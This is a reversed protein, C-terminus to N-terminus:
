LGTLGQNLEIYTGWPDTIFALGLGNPSALKRYPVDFKVGSAELKECFAALDTIEFGIHDLVRGRTGVIATPSISFTLNVGPLDVADNEGRKGPKAGFLKVYWAKIDEVSGVERVFLHIHDNAIPVTLSRDESIEIRMENPAVVYVQTPNQGPATKLGAAKWKALSDQLNRVRFGVHQVVTGENGGPAPDVQSPLNLFVLVDPFKIVEFMNMKTPTGGLAIWFKKHAELAEGRVNLHLHGMAVGAENPAPLQAWVPVVAWLAALSLISIPGRM